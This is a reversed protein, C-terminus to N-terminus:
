LRVWKGNILKLRNKYTLLTLNNHSMGLENAADKKFRHKNLSKIMLRITAEKLNLESM